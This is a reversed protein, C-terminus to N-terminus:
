GVIFLDLERLEDLFPSELFCFLLKPFDLFSKATVEDAVVLAFRFVVIQQYGIAFSELFSELVQRLQLM